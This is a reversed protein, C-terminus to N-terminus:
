LEVKTGLGQKEAAQLALRAVAADQVANGVSKFFTVQRENERGAKRGLVIEGLEAHISQETILGKRLPIILDGAEALCAPRSDVVIRARAVTAEDVEQMQPTYAGIGNIHVGLKLDADRLVPTTSTTATCVIDADAVAEASSGSVAIDTPVRGGRAKMETVYEEARARLADYVHVRTVQRVECVGLLQTRGQTGAGLIAVHAANRRALLDTAAGAAAGTRLATLYTGDMVAMPAGTAADVVLVLAHITPLGQRPNNSFVSVVKVTLSDMDELYAPMFLTVGEHRPVPVQTRLPVNAHGASLQAFASKVAEIAQAMSVAQQVDARTLVTLKM